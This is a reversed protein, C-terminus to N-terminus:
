FFVIVPKNPADSNANAMLEPEEPPNIHQTEVVLTQPNASNNKTADGVVDYDTTKAAAFDYEGFVLPNHPKCRIHHYLYEVCVDRTGMM